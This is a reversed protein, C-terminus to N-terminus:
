LSVSPSPHRVPAILRCVRPFIFLNFSTMMCYVTTILIEDESDNVNADNGVM